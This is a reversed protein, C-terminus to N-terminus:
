PKGGRTTDLEDLADRELKQVRAALEAFRAQWPDLVISATGLNVAEGVLTFTVSHRGCRGSTLQDCDRCGTSM